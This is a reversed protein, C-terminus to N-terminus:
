LVGSQCPGPRYKHSATIAGKNNKIPRNTAGFPSRSWHVIMHAMLAICPTTWQRSPKILTHRNNPKSHAEIKKELQIEISNVHSDNGDSRFPVLFKSIILEITRSHEIGNRLTQQSAGPRFRMENLLFFCIWFQQFLKWLCNICAQMRKYGGWLSLKNVM